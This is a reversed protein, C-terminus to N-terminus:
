KVRHYADTKVIPHIIDIYINAHRHHPKIVSDLRAVFKKKCRKCKCKRLYIKQSGFEGLISDMKQYEQKTVSKYGYNSCTPKAYEFHNDVLLNLAQNMNRPTEPNQFRETLINEFNPKESGFDSLKLQISDICCSLTHITANTM